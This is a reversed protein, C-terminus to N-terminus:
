GPQTKRRSYKKIANYTKSRTIEEFETEKIEKGQKEKRETVL